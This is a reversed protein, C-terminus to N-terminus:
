NRAWGGPHLHWRGGRPAWRYPSWYYGPRPHAWRGGIWVHRGAQWGWYGAIWVAGLFPAVPVVEVQQPPPAADASVVPPEGHAGYPVVVCASLTAALLAASAFRIIQM